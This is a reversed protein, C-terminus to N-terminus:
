FVGAAKEVLELELKEPDEAVLQGSGIQTHVYTRKDNESDDDIIITCDSIFDPL